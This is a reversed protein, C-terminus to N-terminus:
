REGAGGAAEILEGKRQWTKEISADGQRIVDVLADITLAADRADVAGFPRLPRTIELQIGNPDDFYISEIMEHPLPPTVRVGHAKLRARWAALEESTEVHFAVHRAVRMLPSPLEGPPLDFFYFFALHNGGGLAFFFHVFDPFIDSLWGLGTVAHVLPLGMVDRYFRVTAEPDWTVYALHDVGRLSDPGAAQPHLQQALTREKTEKGSSIGAAHPAVQAALARRDVKGVATVPFETLIVLKEPHKYDAVGLRQYHGRVTSLELEQGPRLVVCLCIREGVEDDAVPIAAVQSVQPLSCAVEELEDASIKEGCRNIVNKLRGAVTINGDPDVSVLDGTRYWGDATFVRSNHESAAYYGPVTYPGRVLLEGVEGVPVPTGAEDVVLIEDDESMPRGQTTCTIEPPDDPRTFNLLGEAMGYVQQLHGGFSRNLRRAVGPALVSGGVQVLNLTPLRRGTADLEDAWRIAVAPVLGTATVGERQVAGFAPEPQPSPMLVARGGVALAALVGPSGLAFNHAVPLVALYVTDGSFGCVEGARRINYEYDNHTRPILKPTGTTGGSLLHLLTASADPAVTDLRRRRDAVDGGAALLTQLHLRGPYGAPGSVVVRCHSGRRAAIREALVRHEFDRWVDPVVIAQVDALEALKELEYERHSPLALVPVIGLRACGFLVAFFEWCNPLQVLVTDGSRLGAERLGDALADASRALEFYSIRQAGDVLATRSGFSDAWSWLLSGFPQQRWHGAALYRAVRQEPWRPAAEAPPASEIVTM